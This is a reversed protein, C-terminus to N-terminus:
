LGGVVLSDQGVFPPPEHDPVRVNGLNPGCKDFFTPAASCLNVKSHRPVLRLELSDAFVHECIFGKPTIM